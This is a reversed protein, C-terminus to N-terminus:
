RRSQGSAERPARSPPPSNSPPGSKLLLDSKKVWGIEADGQDEYLVHYFGDREGIVRVIDGSALTGLAAKGPVEFVQTKSRVIAARATLTPDLDDDDDGLLSREKEHMADLGAQEASTSRPSSRSTTRVETWGLARAASPLASATVLGFGALLLAYTLAVFPRHTLWALARQSKKTPASAATV